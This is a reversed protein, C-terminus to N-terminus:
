RARHGTKGGYGAPSHAIDGTSRRVGGRVRAERLPHARRACLSVTVHSLRGVKLPHPRVLYSSPDAGSSREDLRTPLFHLGRVRGDRPRRHLYSGGVRPLAADRLTQAAFHALESDRDECRCQAIFHVDRDFLFIHVVAVLTLIGM